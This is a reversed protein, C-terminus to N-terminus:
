ENFNSINDFDENFDINEREEKVEYLDRTSTTDKIVYENTQKYIENDNNYYTRLGRQVNFTQNGFIGNAITDFDHEGIEIEIIKEDFYTNIIEVSQNPFGIFPFVNPNSIPASSPSVTCFVLTSNNNYRYKISKQNNSNVNDSLPEVRNNSTILKTLNRVKQANGGLEYYEIRYGILGNNEFKNRYEIPIDQLDFVLGKVDNNAQLIGCDLIRTKFRSPRIYLNYFGITNFINTPLTLNYLGGLPSTPDDPTTNESIIQNSELRVPATPQTTRDPSYTYFVEIDSPSVNAGRVNGYIGTSM